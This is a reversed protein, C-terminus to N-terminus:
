QNFSLLVGGSSIRWPWDLHNIYQRYFFFTGMQVINLSLCEYLSKLWMLTIRFTLAYLDSVKLLVVIKRSIYPFIDFIWLCLINMFYRVNGAPINSKNTLRKTRPNEDSCQLLLNLYHLARSWIVLIWLKM